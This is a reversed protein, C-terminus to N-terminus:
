VKKNDRKKLVGIWSDIIEVAENIGSNRWHERERVADEQYLADVEKRVEYLLDINNM